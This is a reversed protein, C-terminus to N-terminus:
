VQRHSPQGLVPTPPCAQPRRRVRTGGRRLRQFFRAGAASTRKQLPGPVPRRGAKAPPCHVPTRAGRMREIGHVRAGGPRALEAKSFGQDLYHKLMLLTRRRQKFNRALEFMLDLSPPNARPPLPSRPRDDSLSSAGVTEAAALDSQRLVLLAQRDFTVLVTGGLSEGQRAIAGDAFDGGSRLARIGSEVAPMDTVVTEITCIAQITDAVQSATQDYNRRLVWSFECLVPVPIALATAQALVAEAAAAQEADDRLVTRLLVNTDVSIKVKRRGMWRRRSRRNGRGDSTRYQITGAIRLDDFDVKGAQTSARHSPRKATRCQAQRGPARWHARTVGVAALVGGAPVARRLSSILRSDRVLHVDLTAQGDINVAFCTEVDRVRLM